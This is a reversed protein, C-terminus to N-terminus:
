NSHEFAGKTHVAPRHVIIKGPFATKENAILYQGFSEYIDTWAQDDGFIVINGNIKYVNQTIRMYADEPLLSYIGESSYYDESVSPVVEGNDFVITFNDGVVCCRRLEGNKMTAVLNYVSFDPDCDLRAIQTAIPGTITHTKNIVINNELNYIVKVIIIAVSPIPFKAGIYCVPEYDDDYYKGKYKIIKRDHNYLAIINNDEDAYYNYEQTINGITIISVDERYILQNKWPTLHQNGYLFPIKLVNHQMTLYGQSISYEGNIKKVNINLRGIDDAVIAFDDLAYIRNIIVGHYFDDVVYAAGDTTYILLRDVLVDRDITKIKLETMCGKKCYVADPNFSIDVIEGSKSILVSKNNVQDIKFNKISNDKFKIIIGYEIEDIIVDEVLTVFDNVVSYGCIYVINADHRNFHRQTSVSTKESVYEQTKERFINVKVIEGTTLKLTVNMEGDYNLISLVNDYKCIHRANWQYDLLLLKGGEVAPIFGTM